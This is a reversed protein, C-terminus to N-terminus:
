WFKFSKMLSPFGEIGDFIVESTIVAFNVATENIILFKSQCKPVCKILNFCWNQGFKHAALDM